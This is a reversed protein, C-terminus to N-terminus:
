VLQKGSEQFRVIHSVTIDGVALPGIGPGLIQKSGKGGESCLVEDRCIESPSAISSLISVYEHGKDFDLANYRQIAYKTAGPLKKRCGPTMSVIM